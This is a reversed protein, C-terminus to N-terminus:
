KGNQIPESDPMIKNLIFYVPCFKTVPSIIQLIAVAGAMYLWQINITYALIVSLLYLIGVIADHLRIKTQTSSTGM